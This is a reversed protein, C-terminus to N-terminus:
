MLHWLYRDCKKKLFVWQMILSKQWLLRLFLFCFEAPVTKYCMQFFVQIVHIANFTVMVSNCFTTNNSYIFNTTYWLYVPIASYHNFSYSPFSFDTSHIMLNFHDSEISNYSLFFSQHHSKKNLKNRCFIAWSIEMAVHKMILRVCLMVM